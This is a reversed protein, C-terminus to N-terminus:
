NWNYEFIMTNCYLVGRQPTIVYYMPKLYIDRM